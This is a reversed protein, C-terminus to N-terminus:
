LFFYANPIRFINRDAQRQVLLTLHVRKVYLKKKKFEMKIQRRM